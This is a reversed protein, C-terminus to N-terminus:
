STLIGSTFVGSPRDAGGAPLGEGLMAGSCGAGRAAGDGAARGGVGSGCGAGASAVGAGNGGSCNGCGFADTAVGAAGRAVAGGCAGGGGTCDGAPWCRESVSIVAKTVRPSANRLAPSM